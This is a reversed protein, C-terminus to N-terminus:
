CNLLISMAYGGNIWPLSLLAKKLDCIELLVVDVKM